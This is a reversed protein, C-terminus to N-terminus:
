ATGIPLRNEAGKDRLPHMDGSFRCVPSLATDTHDKTELHLVASPASLRLNDINPESHMELRLFGLVDRRRIM